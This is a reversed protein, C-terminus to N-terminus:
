HYVTNKGAGMLKTAGEGLAKLVTIIELTAVCVMSTSM